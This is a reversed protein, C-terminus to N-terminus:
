GKQGSREKSAQAGHWLHVDDTGSANPLGEEAKQPWLNPIHGAGGAGRGVSRHLSRTMSPCGVKRVNPGGVDPKERHRVCLNGISRLCKCLGFGCGGNCNMTRAEVCRVFHRGQAVLGPVKGACM